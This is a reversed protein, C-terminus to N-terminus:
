TIKLTHLPNQRMYHTRVVEQNLITKLYYNFCVQNVDRHYGAVSREEGDNGEDDNDEDDKDDNDDDNDDEVAAGGRVGDKVRWVGTQSGSLM